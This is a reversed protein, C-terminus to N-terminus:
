APTYYSSLRVCRWAHNGEGYDYTLEEGAIIDRKAFFVICPKDDVVIRKPLVNPNNQDDNMYRELYNTNTSDIRFVFISTSTFNTLRKKTRDVQM